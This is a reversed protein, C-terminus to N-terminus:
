VAGFGPAGERPFGLQNEHQGARVRVRLRPVPAQGEKEHFLGARSGVLEGVRAGATPLHAPAGDGGQAVSAHM